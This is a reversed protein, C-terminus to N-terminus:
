KKLSAADLKAPLDKPASKVTTQKVNKANRMGSDIRNFILYQHIKIGNVKKIFEPLLENEWKLIYATGKENVRATRGNRHIFEEEHRPLEYHIIYNMEPIDIGRAALDTAILIQSTGNRFKILSRERDKQEMGGNFCGHNINKRELFSSVSQIVDKLNCFIIGQHNGIHPYRLCFLSM